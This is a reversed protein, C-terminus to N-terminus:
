DSKQKGARSVFAAIAQRAADTEFCHLQRQVETELADELTSHLSHEVSQKAHGVAEASLGVLTMALAQAEAMLVTAPVIRNFIGVREAEVADVTRGSLLLEMARGVGVIRPLFYTAGWDPHLGLRTFPLGFVADNSAIRVDCALALSAGAGMAPGNVAAIVAKRMARLALVVDRGADLVKRVSQWEAREVHESMAVLDGGACFARGRGTIIVALVDANAAVNEIQQVLAEALRLDIANLRGPRNLAVTAVPGAIEVVVAHDDM